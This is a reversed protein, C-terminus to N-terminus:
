QHYHQHERLELCVWLARVHGISDFDILLDLIDYYVMQGTADSVQFSDQECAVACGYAPSYMRVGSVDFVSRINGSTSVVFILGHYSGSYYVSSIVIYWSYRVIRYSYLTSVGDTILIAKILQM